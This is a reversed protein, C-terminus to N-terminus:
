RAAAMMFDPACRTYIQTGRKSVWTLRNDKVTLRVDTTWHERPNSCHAAVKWGTETQKQNKFICFTEGAWAGDTNIITPLLGDRLNRASCAGADPVWVGVISALPQAVPDPTARDDKPGVPQFVLRAFTDGPISSAMLPRIRESVDVVAMDSRPRDPRTGVGTPPQATAASGVMQEGAAQVAQRKPTKAVPIVHLVVAFCTLLAAGAILEHRRIIGPRFTSIWRKVGNWSLIRKVSNWSLMRRGRKGGAPLSTQGGSRGVGNASHGDRDPYFRRFTSQLGRIRIQNDAIASVPCLNSQKTTGRFARRLPFVATKGATENACSLQAIQV